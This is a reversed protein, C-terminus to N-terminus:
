ENDAEERMQELFSERRYEEAEEEIKTIMDDRMKLIIQSLFPLETESVVRKINNMGLSIHVCYAEKTFCFNDYNYLRVLINSRRLEEIVQFLDSNPKCTQAEIGAECGDEHGAEYGERYIETLTKNQINHYNGREDIDNVKM